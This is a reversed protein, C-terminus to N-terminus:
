YASDMEIEIREPTLVLNVFFEHAQHNSLSSPYELHFFQLLDNTRVMLNQYTAVLISQIKQLVHVM